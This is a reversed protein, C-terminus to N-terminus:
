CTFIKEIRVGGKTASHMHLRRELEWVCAFDPPATYESVFVRCIKSIERVWQWFEASDFKGVAGYGTTNAYPPDCYVGSGLIPSVDRYGGASFVVGGFGKLKKILSRKAAGAYTKGDKRVGAFGAFWDGGFSCGAGIFATLPDGLPQIAKYYDRCTKTVDEPPVWGDTLARYLVALHPNADSAFRVPLSVRSIISAGGMFPEYYATAADVHPQLFEVLRKAIMEKGGLYQM